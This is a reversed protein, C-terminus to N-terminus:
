TMQEEPTVEEPLVQCFGSRGSKKSTCLVSLRIAEAILTREVATQEMATKGSATVHQVVNGASPRCADGAPRADRTSPSCQALSLCVWWDTPSDPTGQDNHTQACKRKIM